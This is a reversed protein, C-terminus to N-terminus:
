RVSLILSGTISTLRANVSIDMGTTEEDFKVDERYFRLMDQDLNLAFHLHKSFKYYWSLCLSSNLENLDSQIGPLTYQEEYVTQNSKASYGVSFKTSTVIRPAIGLGFSHRESTPLICQLKLEWAEVYNIIKYNDHVRFGIDNSRWSLSTRFGLSKVGNDIMYFLGLNSGDSSRFTEHNSPHFNFHAGYSYFAGFHSVQTRAEFFFLLCVCTLLTRATM